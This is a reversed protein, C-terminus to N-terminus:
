GGILPSPNALQPRPDRPALRHTVVQPPRRQTQADDGSDHASAVVAAADVNPAPLARWTTVVGDVIGSCVAIRSESKLLLLGSRCSPRSIARAVPAVYTRSGAIQFLMAGEDGDELKTAM